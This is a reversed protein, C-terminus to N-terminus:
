RVSELKAVRKELILLDKKEAKKEMKRDIVVSEAMMGKFGMRMETKMDSMETKMDSMETKMDSMETKMDSIEAKMDSIEAKVNNIEMKMDIRVDNIEEKFEKRIEKFGREMSEQLMLNGEAVLKIEDRMNELLVVFQDERSSGQIKTNKKGTKGAM